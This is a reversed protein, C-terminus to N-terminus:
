EIRIREVRFLITLLRCETSCTNLLSFECSRVPMRNLRGRTARCISPRVIGVVSALQNLKFALRIRGWNANNILGVKTLMVFIVPCQSSLRHRQRYHFSFGPVVSCRSVFVFNWILTLWFDRSLEIPIESKHGLHQSSTFQLLFTQQDATTKQSKQLSSYYPTMSTIVRIHSSDTFRSELAM